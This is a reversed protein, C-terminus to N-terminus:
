EPFEYISKTHREDGFMSSKCGSNEERSLSVYYGDKVRGLIWNSDGEQEWIDTLPSTYNGLYKKAEETFNYGELKLKSLKYKEKM